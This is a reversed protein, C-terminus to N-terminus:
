VCKGPYSLSCRHSVAREYSLPGGRGSHTALAAAYPHKLLFTLRQYSWKNTKGDASLKLTPGTDRNDGRAFVLWCDKEVTAIPNFVTEAALWAFKEWTSFRLDDEIRIPM